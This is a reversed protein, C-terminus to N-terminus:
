ENSDNQSISSLPNSKVAKRLREDDIHTYIQTTSVNEHGLIQQLARIDVNGHKYMLTAATHRLKHPSYKESDLGALKVYKKVMYQVAKPSLRNKKRSIFLAKKDKGDSPRVKLYNDLANICADNLYITREKNGKGIVTLTDGKIKDIDISVLESLRMGCNLFLTIIAYDREKFQGDIAELLQKAEELTLYVPHRSDTKPSELDLAPNEDILRVKSHLYKFFSRLSAVKRAKAHNHNNREKDVYSIFAYLDQINVRKIINIDIDSIDIEEFDTSKTVIRYRVKLFKFFTRLDYHYERVTNSSKGRITEIYNLFDELLIPTDDM